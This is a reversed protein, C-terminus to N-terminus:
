RMRKYRQTDAWTTDLSHKDLWHSLKLSIDTLMNDNIYIGHYKISELDYVSEPLDTLNNSELDLNSLNKLKGIDKPLESLGNGTLDIYELTIIETVENPISDLQNNPINLKELQLMKVDPSLYTFRDGFNQINLETIRTNRRRTVAEVTTDIGNQELIKAVVASDKAYQVSLEVEKVDQQAGSNVHVIQDRITDYTETSFILEYDGAPLSDILFESNIRSQIKRNLGPIRIVVLSDDKILVSDETKIFGTVAGTEMITIGKPSPTTSDNLTDVLLDYKARRGDEGVIEIWYSGHEVNELEFRGSEDTIAAVTDVGEIKNEERLYIEANKQAYGSTSLVVSSFYGNTTESTAGAVNPKSCGNMFVTCAVAFILIQKM